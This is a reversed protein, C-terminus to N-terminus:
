DSFILAPQHRRKGEHFHGAVQHDFSVSQDFKVVVLEKVSKKCRMTQYRKRDMRLNLITLLFASFRAIEIEDAKEGRILTRKRIASVYKLLIMLVIPSTGIMMKWVWSRM